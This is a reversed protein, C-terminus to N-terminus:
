SIKPETPHPSNPFYRDKWRLLPKELWHWSAYALLITFLTSVFALATDSWHWRALSVADLVWTGVILHVLYMTYSITGIFILARSRFIRAFWWGSGSRAVFLGIVASVVISILPYGFVMFLVSQRIERGVIPRIAFLIAALAGCSLLAVWTFFSSAWRPIGNRRWNEFLIAVFAGYLLADFRCLLTFYALETGDIWRLFMETLCVFIAIWTITRRSCRLVIPAWLLYFYEEISLSWYTQPASAYTIGTGVGGPPLAHAYTLLPALHTLHFRPHQILGLFFDRADKPMAQMFLLQSAL